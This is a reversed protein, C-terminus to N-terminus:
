SESRHDPPAQATETWVEVLRTIAGDRVTAFSAV